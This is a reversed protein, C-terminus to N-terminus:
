REVILVRKSQASRYIDYYDFNAGVVQKIYVAKPPASKVLEGTIVGGRITRLDITKM